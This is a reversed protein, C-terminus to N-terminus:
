RWCAVSSHTSTRRQRFPAAGLYMVSRVTDTPLVARRRKHEADDASRTTGGMPREVIPPRANATAAGRAQFLRGGAKRKGEVYCLEKLFM